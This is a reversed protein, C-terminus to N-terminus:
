PAGRPPRGAQRHAQAHFPAPRRVARANLLYEGATAQELLANRAPRPASFGLESALRYEALRQDTPPAHHYDNMAVNAKAILAIM